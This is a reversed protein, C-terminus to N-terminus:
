QEELVFDTITGKLDVEALDTYIRDTDWLYFDPKDFLYAILTSHTFRNKSKLPEVTEGNIISVQDTLSEGYIGYYPAIKDILLDREDDSHNINNYTYVYDMEYNVVRPYRISGKKVDKIQDAGIAPCWYKELTNNYDIWGLHLGDERHDILFGDSWVLFAHYCRRNHIRKIEALSDKPYTVHRNMMVFAIYLKHKNM